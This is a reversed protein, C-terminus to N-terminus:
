PHGRPDSAGGNSAVGTRRTSAPPAPSGVSKLLSHFDEKLRTHAATLKRLARRRGCSRTRLVIAERATDELADLAASCLARMEPDEVLEVVEDLLDLGEELEKKTRQPVNKLENVGCPQLLAM